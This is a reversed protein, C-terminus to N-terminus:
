RDDEPVYAASVTVTDLGDPIWGYLKPVGVRVTVTHASRNVSADATFRFGSVAHDATAAIVSASAGVSAQRAVENAANGALVHGLGVLLGQACIFFALMFITVFVPLEVAASGTEAHARAGLRRRAAAPRAAAAPASARTQGAGVGCSALTQRATEEMVPMRASTLSGSNVPEELEDTLEAVARTLPLNVLKAVLDPQVERRRATRNVVLKVGEPDRVRLRGWADLVRRGARISILECDAVLIAEDAVELAVARADDLTAGTDVIIVSFHRRLENLMQRVAPATADDAQEVRDPAALLVFGAPVEVAVERIGRITLDGVLEALDAVNRRPTVGCLYALDGARLDLDVLCVTEGLAAAQTALVTALVSVGVGGKAGSLALISGREGRGAAGGEGSVHRRLSRSWAAAHELQSQVEQLSLPQSMMARGGAAVVSALTATGNNIVVVAVLPANLGLERVLELAPPDFLGADVVVVDLDPLELLLSTLDAASNVVGALDLDPAEAVITAFSSRVQPSATVLAVQIPM